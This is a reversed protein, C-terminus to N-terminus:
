LTDSNGFGGDWWNTIKAPKLLNLEIPTNSNGFEGDWWNTSNKVQLFWVSWIKTFIKRPSFQKPFVRFHNSCTIPPRTTNSICARVSASLNYIRYLVSAFTTFLMHDSHMYQVNMNMSFGLSILNNPSVFEFSFNIYILLIKYSTDCIYLRRWSM